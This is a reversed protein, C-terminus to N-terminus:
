HRRVSPSARRTDPTTAQPPRADCSSVRRTTASNSRGRAKQDREGRLDPLRIPSHGITMLGGIQFGVAERQDGSGGALNCFISVNAVGDGASWRRTTLLLGRLIVDRYIPSAITMPDDARVLGLDRVYAIGDTPFLEVRPAGSRLPEIVRRVRKEQLKDALQDLHTQRRRILQERADQVAAATIPRSRDRGAKNRLCAEYAPREAAVAPGADPGWIGARAEATFPQGTEATHPALLSEVDAQSFDGQRLSAARVYFASGGAIIPNEAGSRIRYDCVGCLVVSQPFRSPREPYGARLQRLVALFADGVLADLEDIISCSRSRKRSPGARSRRGCRMTPGPASSSAPGPPPSGGTTSRTARRPPWRASSRRMGAAVDERATQGVEVNVYVCRVDGAANLEDRLELLASTKGTQRPAHLVFHKWQQILLRVDDADLRELSPVHYHRDRQIPGATNFFRMAGFIARPRVHAAHGTSANSPAM